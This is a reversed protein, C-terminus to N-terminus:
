LSSLGAITKPDLLHAGLWRKDLGVMLSLYAGASHGSLFVREASGGYNQINKLTWAVAAAADEIFEPAKAAPSLRYNV